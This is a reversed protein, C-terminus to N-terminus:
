GDLLTNFYNYVYSSKKNVLEETTPGGGRSIKRNLPTIEGREGKEKTLKTLQDAQASVDSLRKFRTEENISARKSQSAPTNEASRALAGIPTEREYDLTYISLMILVNIHM